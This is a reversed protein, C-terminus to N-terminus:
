GDIRTIRGELKPTIPQGGNRLATRVVGPWDPQGGPLPDPSKGGKGKSFINYDEKYGNEWLYDLTSVTIREGADKLPKCDKGAPCLWVDDMGVKFSPPDTTRDVHYQFRLGSVQLFRGDAQGIQSVSNELVSLLENRSLEFSVLKNNFYAIGKLDEETIPGPLISDNIRVSGGNLIAVETGSEKRLEDALFNGLATERERIATEVGELLVDTAGVQDTLNRKEKALFAQELDKRSRAVEQLMESDRPIDLGLEVRQPVAFVRGDALVEVDIRVVSRADADAKTIWTRGERRQTFSHDHGGVILHIQPFKKALAIDDKLKQHTLAIFVQAGQEQLRQLAEGVLRVRDEYRYEVWPRDDGAVTLGFIGVKVGGVDQVIEDHVNRFRRSPPEFPSDDAWRLRVTSTVWRFGSEAVRNTLLDRSKNDFEHNGFTVILNDDLEGADGDLLNMCRIMSRADLYDSMVSPFLFDGAHLMLVPKGEKELANRLSRVRALGGLKGKELGEVKYLDNIQLITFSGAGADVSATRWVVIAVIALAATMALHVAIGPLLHGWRRLLPRM